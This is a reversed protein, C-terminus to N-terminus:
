DGALFVGVCVKAGKINGTKLLVAAIGASALRASRTTICSLVSRVMSAAETDLEYRYLRELVAKTADLTPSSDGVVQSLDASTFSMPKVIAPITPLVGFRVLRILVLRALEGLYMGSMMKEYRQSGKNPSNADIAEDMETFPLVTKRTSDFNGWEMNVCMKQNGGKWGAPSPLKRIQPVSEWYCANSGTGLIVGVEASNDEFFGTVLTGVTDNVLARIKVDVGARIFAEQLLQVVDHGVAGSTSFGKTWTILTGSAIGTQNVPFSFTFGLPFAASSSFNANAADSSPPASAALFDKVAQAVFDFLDAATRSASMLEVPIQFKTQEEAVKRGDEVTCTVVRFNTGGLDLALYRGSVNTDGKYVYSPLMKFDSGNEEQLGEYMDGIFHVIIQNLKELSLHLSHKLDYIVKLKEIEGSPCAQGGQLQAVIRDLRHSM